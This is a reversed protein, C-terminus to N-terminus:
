DLELGFINKLDAVVSNLEVFHAFKESATFLKRTENTAGTEFLRFQFSLFGNNLMRMLAHHFHQRITELKDLQLQNDVWLTIREGEVSPTHTELAIVIMSEPHYGEIYRRIANEVRSADVQERSKVEEEQKEPRAAVKVETRALRTVESLTNKIKFSSDPRAGVTGRVPPAAVPSPKAPSPQAVAGFKGDYGDIKM